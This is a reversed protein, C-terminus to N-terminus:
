LVGKRPLSLEQLEEFSRITRTKLSGIHSTTQAHPSDARKMRVLYSAAPFCFWADLHIRNFEVPNDDIFVVPKQYRGYIDKLADIKSTGVPVVITENPFFDLLAIKERQFDEDGATVIVIPVRELYKLLFDEADDYLVYNEKFWSQALELFKEESILICSKLSLIQYFLRLSFNREETAALVQKAVSESVGLNRTIEFLGRLGDKYHALTHDLDLALVVNGARLSQKQFIRAKEANGNIANAKM